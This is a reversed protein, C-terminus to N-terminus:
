KNAPLFPQMAQFWNEAMKRQGQRNPHAWDFTDADPSDPNETWGQYHHVTRIPSEKSGLANKLDTLEADIRFAGPSDNFNLHGLLIVVNPNKERLFGIADALPEYVNKRFDGFGQDNTGLHILVFDPAPRADDWNEKLKEVAPATRIGYRGEHDPDFPVGPAVDPWEFDANLGDNLSGVFDYDIGADYLMQQLPLRYTYEPRKNVGGQTISDGFALINITKASVPGLTFLAIVLTSIFVRKMLDLETM